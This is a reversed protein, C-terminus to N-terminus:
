PGAGTLAPPPQLPPLHPTPDLALPLEAQRRLEFHLHPGTATGTMGVRGLPEGENLSSGVTVEIQQLHAYLTQLGRGHDLIVTLGYGSLSEALVVTGSLAALVPTGSPAAFDVGTHMRWAGRSESYRWGWPDIQLALVALPYALPPVAPEGGMEPAGLSSSLWREPPLLPAVPVQPPVEAPMSVPLTAGVEAARMPIAALMM